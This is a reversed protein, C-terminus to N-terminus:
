LVWMSQNLLILTTM